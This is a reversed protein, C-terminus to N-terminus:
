IELEALTEIIREPKEDGVAREAQERTTVGTLVLVTHAGARNGVLIDTDLRDGIMIAREPPTDTLELIKDFAYTQPKGVVFPEVATATRLAAVMCGGGPRVRGGEIPFTPDENTAIFKAGDLIAQQARALKDYHFDRDIGVVVYDIRSGPNDGNSIVGMGVAELEETIGQEGIRYVTKGAANHEIFYLAAAYSSTMIDDPSTPIGMLSLKNAYSQRSQASNNTYFRVNHGRSRLAPIVEQAHPQPEDGRYVVGDLDFVYTLREIAPAKKIVM